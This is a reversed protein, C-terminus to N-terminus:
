FCGVDSSHESAVCFRNNNTKWLINKMDVLDDSVEVFNFHYNSTVKLRHLQQLIIGFITNFATKSTVHFNLKRLFGFIKLLFIAFVALGLSRKLEIISM